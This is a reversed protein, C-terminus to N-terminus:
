RAQTVSLLSNSGSEMIATKNIQLIVPGGPLDVTTAASGIPISSKTLDHNFGVLTVSRETRSVEVFGHTLSVVSNDACSDTM